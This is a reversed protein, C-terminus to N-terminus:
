IEVKQEITGVELTVRVARPTGSLLEVDTLVATKFGSLSASVTYVGPDIAPMDFAGTSNTVTTTVVGTRNNKVEVTAGPIGGGTSDLMIGSLATKTSGQAFAISSFLMVIALSVLLGRSVLRHMGAELLARFHAGCCQTNSYRGLM